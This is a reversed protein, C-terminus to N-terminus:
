SNEFFWVIRVMALTDLQCYERLQDSLKRGQEAPTDADIIKEYALQAGTGDQVDGLGDYSLEPAVTPLVAKLSYS